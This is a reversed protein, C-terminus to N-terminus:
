PGDHQDTTNPWSAAIGNQNYAVVSDSVTVNMSQSINPQSSTNVQLGYNTNHEIKVHDLIATTTGPGSPFIDIGEFNDSVLTNSISLTSSSGPEYVIGAEGFNRIM